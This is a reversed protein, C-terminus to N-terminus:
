AGNEARTELKVVREATEQAIKEVAGLRTDVRALIQDTSRRHSKQEDSIDTITRNVSLQVGAILTALGEGRDGTVANLIPQATAELAARQKNRTWVTILSIFGWAVAGVIVRALDMSWSVGLPATSSPQFGLVALVGTPIYVAEPLHERLSALNMWWVECYTRWM